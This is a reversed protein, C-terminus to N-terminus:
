QFDMSIDKEPKPKPKRRENIYIGAFTTLASIAFILIIGKYM